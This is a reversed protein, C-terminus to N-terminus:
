REVGSNDVGCTIESPTTTRERKEVFHNQIKTDPPTTSLKKLLNNKSMLHKTILATKYDSPLTAIFQSQPGQQGVTGQVTRHTDNQATSCREPGTGARYSQEIEPSVRYITLTTLRWFFLTRVFRALM